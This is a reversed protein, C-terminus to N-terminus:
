TGVEVQVEQGQPCAFGNGGPNSTVTPHYGVLGRISMKVALTVQLAIQTGSTSNIPNVSCAKFLDQYTQDVTDQSTYSVTMPIATTSITKASFQVGSLTGTAFIAGTQADLMQADLSTFAIPIYNVRNDIQVSVDWQASIKPANTPGFSMPANTTAGQLYIAPVRPWVFFVVIAIVILAGFTVFVCTRRPVGCCRRDDPRPKSKGALTPLLAHHLNSSTSHAQTSSASITPEHYISDAPLTTPDNYNMMSIEDTNPTTNRERGVHAELMSPSKISGTSHLGNYDPLTDHYDLLQPDSPPRYPDLTHNSYPLYSNKNEKNSISKFSGSRGYPPLPFTEDVEFSHSFVKDQHPFTNASHFPNGDDFPPPEMSKHSSSQSPTTRHGLARAAEHPSTGDSSPMQANAQMRRGNRPKKSRYPDNTPIMSTATSALIAPEPARTTPTRNGRGSTPTVAGSAGHWAFSAAYHRDFDLPTASTPRLSSASHQHSHGMARSRRTSQLADEGGSHARSHARRQSRGSPDM